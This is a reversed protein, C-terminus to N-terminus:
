RMAPTGTHGYVYRYWAYDEIVVRLYTRTEAFDVTEIYWDAGPRFQNRFWRSANGPGGNYAALAGFVDGDFGRLQLALYHAGFRLSTSPNLLLAPDWPVGLSAAIEQGTAPMVQTLGRAGVPSGAEPYFLSERRVLALLLLPPIEEGQAASLTAQAFPAPYALREIARPAQLRQAATLQNLIRDAATISIDYVGAESAVRAIALLDHPRGASLNTQERLVTRAVAGEGAAALGFGLQLRQRDAESLSTPAGYRSQMWIAAETWDPNASGIWESNLAVPLPQDASGGAAHLIASISRPDHQAPTSVGAGLVHLWRSARAAISGVSRNLLANLGTHAQADENERVRLLAARVAADAAFTSQPLTTALAEYHEAAARRNGALNLNIAAWWHANDALQGAPALEISRRYSQIAQDRNGARERIAGIYFAAIAAEGAAGSLLVEEYLAQAATDERHRYRVLAAQLPAVAANASELANLASGAENTAPYNAVVSRAQDIWGPDNASRMLLAQSWRAWAIQSGTAGNAAVIGELMAIAESRRELSRLLSAGDVRAVMRLSPTLGPHTVAATFGEVAADENGARELMQAARLTAMGAMPGGGAAVQGFASAAQAHQGADRFQVASRYAAVESASPLFNALDPSVVTAPVAQCLLVLGTGAPIEGGPRASLFAENVFDPAGMIYGVFGGAHTEWVSVVLCGGSAATHRLTDLSGGGWTVLAVGGSSPLNGAIQGPEQAEVKSPVALGIAVLLAIAYLVLPVPRPAASDSARTMRCWKRVWGGASRSTRPVAARASLNRPLM